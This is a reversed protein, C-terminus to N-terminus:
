SSEFMSEDVGDMDDDDQGQAQSNKKKVEAAEDAAAAAAAAAAAEAEKEEVVPEPLEPRKGSSREGEMADGLLMTQDLESPSRSFAAPTTTGSAGGEWSLAASSLAGEDGGTTPVSGLGSSLASRAAVDTAETVSASGGEQKTSSETSAAAAKARAIAAPSIKLERSIPGLDRPSAVPHKPALAALADRMKDFSPREEPEALWCSNLVGFIDEPCNPPRTLRLGHYVKQAIDSTKLGTYPLDGGTFMEWILIGCAWVDSKESFERRTFGELAVWRIPLKVQDKVPICNQGPALKRTLGFDAVKVVNKYTLLLNRLALDMHVLRKSAIHACGAAAQTAFNLYEGSFVELGGDKCRKLVSRLDGFYCFELVALWPKQQIAVGILRVVNDHQLELMAMCENIFQAKDAPGAANKLLKVARTRRDGGGDGRGMPVTQQAIYVSGFQGAGICELAKLEARHIQRQFLEAPAPERSPDTVAFPNAAKAKLLAAQQIAAGVTQAMIVGQGRPSHYVLCLYTPEGKKHVIYALVDLKKDVSPLYATHLILTMPHQHLPQKAKTDEVQIGNPSIIVQVAVPKALEKKKKKVMLDVAEMMNNLATADGANMMEQAVLTADFAVPWAPEPQQGPPSSSRSAAGAAGPVPSAVRSAPASSRASSAASPPSLTAPSTPSAPPSLDLQMSGADRIGSIMPLSVKRSISGQVVTATQDGAKKAKCAEIFKAVEEAKDKTQMVHTYSTNNGPTSTTCVLVNSSATNLSVMEIPSNMVADKDKSIVMDKGVVLTGKSGGVSIATQVARRFAEHNWSPDYKLSGCFVIKFKKQM